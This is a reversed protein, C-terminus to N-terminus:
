AQSALKDVEVDAHAFGNGSYRGMGERYLKLSLAKALGRNRYAEEVYLHTLSADVGLFAWGALSGTKEDIIAASPLIKM